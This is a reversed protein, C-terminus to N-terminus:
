SHYRHSEFLFNTKGPLANVKVGGSIIDVAVSTTMLYKIGLSEKAAEIALNDKKSCKKTSHKPLLKKLKQPFESSYEAGCQLIALYPNEEYLRPEYLNAEIHTILDSMVGIGNHQPPISSHGGPM